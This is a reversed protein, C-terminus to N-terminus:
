CTKKIEEIKEVPYNTVKAILEMPLGERLMGIITEEKGQEIGQEIGKEIGQKIGKEIGQEIGKEINEQDRMLLTMYERRWEQNEKIKKIEEELKDIFTNEEKRGAVYELFAKLNGDVDEM